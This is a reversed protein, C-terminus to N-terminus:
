HSKCELISLNSPQDQSIFYSEERKNVNWYPYIQLTDDLNIEITAAKNVNWYPYIQLLAPYKVCVSSLKNVNWYPYIQLLCQLFLKILGQLNVNWYPYIQLINRTVYEEFTLYKCELISLNSTHHCARSLKRYM